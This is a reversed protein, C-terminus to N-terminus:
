NARSAKSSVDDSSRFIERVSVGAHDRYFTVRVDSENAGFLRLKNDQHPPGEGRARAAAEETLRKVTPSTTPTHARGLEGWTPVAATSTM